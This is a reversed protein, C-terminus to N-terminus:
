RRSILLFVCSNGSDLIKFEPDSHGRSVAGSVVVVRLRLALGSVVLLVQLVEYSGVLSILLFSAAVVDDHGLSLDLHRFLEDHHFNSFSFVGKIFRYHVVLVVL